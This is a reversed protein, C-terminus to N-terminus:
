PKGDKGILQPKGPGASMRALGRYLKRNESEPATKRDGSAKIVLDGSRVDGPHPQPIARASLISERGELRDLPPHRHAEGFWDKDCHETEGKRSIAKVARGNHRRVLCHLATVGHITGLPHVPFVAALGPRGNVRRKQLGCRYVTNGERRQSQGDQWRGM